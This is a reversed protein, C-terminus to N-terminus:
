IEEVSKKFFECFYLAGKITRHNENAKVSYHLEMGGIVAVFEGRSYNRWKLDEKSGIERQAVAVNVGRLFWIREDHEPLFMFTGYPLRGYSPARAYLSIALPEQLLPWSVVTGDSFQFQKPADAFNGILKDAIQLYQRKLYEIEPKKQIFQQLEEDLSM